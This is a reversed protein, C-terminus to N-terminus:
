ASYEINGIFRYVGVDCLVRLLSVGDGSYLRDAPLADALTLHFFATTLLATSGVALRESHGLPLFFTIYALILTILLPLLSKVIYQLADRQIDVNVNILSYNTAVTKGFNQPNGLTSYTPFIDQAVHVGKRRGDLFPISRAMIVSTEWFSTIESEYRMGPRDVVYQIFSTTANQNRFEVILNQHEFPYDYFSFQNKFTGSVRYTKLVTGDLIQKM